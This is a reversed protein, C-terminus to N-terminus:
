EVESAYVAVVGSPNISVTFPDSIQVHQWLYGTFVDRIDYGLPFQFGIRKLELTYNTPTGDTRTNLFVAAMDGDNGDGLNRMWVEIGNDKSVLFSLFPQIVTLNLDGPTLTYNYPIGDSRRNLFAVGYSPIKTSEIPRTWVDIGNHDAYVMVVGNPVVSVTFEQSPSCHGYDKGTFVDTLQYGLCSGCKLRLDGPTLTYNHPMGDSRRNLFAVGYTPIDPFEIPRTWVDIGNHDVGNPAMSVTLNRNLEFHGLPQGSYLDDLHYGKLYTFNLDQLTLTYNYPMGDTRRNLFAIGYSSYEIDRLWVEIKNDGTLERYLDYHGYERGTFVDQVAYGMMYQFHLDGLTLTYNYPEGDARRNLFAIGYSPLFTVDLERTWVEIKDEGITVALESNLRLHGYYRYEFADVVEYGVPYTFNLSGLTLTHNYPIGDSRRNLFAVAYTDQREIPRVWTEIKNDGTLKTDLGFHGYRHNTYVDVVEYGMTSTFNLSGLTTTHNYPMGDERRNLFAVAYTEKTQVQRVWTEVKNTGKIVRRGQMGLSDQSIRIVEKNMLITRAEPSISRLDNSMFLPAALIAWMAMQAKSEEYSLSYDGVILSIFSFMKTLLDMCDRGDGGGGGVMDPDNWQGPAAAPVLIDQNNGYWDIINTVSDWSDQIDGYNRWMNCHDGIATYNVMDPDNWHGPGAAPALVDQNDGFWDIIHTVSDWSDQIDDYNRWANCHKGLVSYDVKIGGAYAPWSCSFLIPRGTKNMYMEMDPYGWSMDSVNAYCGDMKLMDIGWGAITEADKQLYKISGPYGGCTHTGFDLYIGLKLGKSHVYDALKKIGNPFRTKNAYLNGQEDRDMSMWCDDINIYNYGLEKWGDESLRDAMQMFLRESICNYPDDVCDVNCRFREWALWGMPPTRALGNDLTNSRCLLLAFAVAATVVAKWM